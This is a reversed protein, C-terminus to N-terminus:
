GNRSVVPYFQLFALLSILVLSRALSSFSFFAHIMFTVTIGITIPANPVTVLPKTCPSSSKSILPRSSVMWVAANNFDAQIRLLIRSVQPCKSDSVSSHFEM